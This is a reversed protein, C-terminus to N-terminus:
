ARCGSCRRRSGRGAGATTSRRTGLHAIGDYAADGVGRPVVQVATGAVRWIGGLRGLLHRVASSRTLVRGDATVLVLSDPRRTDLPAFRLAAGDPHEARLFRVVGQALGSTADYYLTEVAGPSRRPVWAPDFTFLHLLVMGLSLDTFDLLAMLSLHLAFMAGWLWPRLRRVLALPGFAVELVLVGWTCAALLPAPLHLFLDRIPGPRALPNDLIRALATGDIWSPSTLKTAGSFTYGAAMVIWAAAFLSPAFRWGGGPDVRGRAEWSGFPARPLLAHALLIWGIYPIGPNLILPNRGLLCAWTYWVAVAARRDHWGAALLLSGAAAGTLLTAVLWPADAWALVNPFLMALPSAAADAVMGHNSFLEGGWPILSAFHAALYVGLIVRFLSYQGGTWGNTM